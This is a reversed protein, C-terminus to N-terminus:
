EDTEHTENLKSRAVRQFYKKLVWGTRYEQHLWHYYEIEIWKGEESLPRVVENPLLKGVETAGSDPKTFVTAVREKAVFRQESQQAEKVLAKEVLRTLSEITKRQVEFKDSLTDLKNELAAQTQASSYEQWIPVLVALIFSLLAMLDLARRNLGILPDAADFYTPDLSGDPSIGLAALQAQMGESGLASALAAASTWDMVPLSIKGIQDQWAKMSGISDLLASPVEWLKNVEEFQKNVRYLGTSMVSNSLMSKTRELSEEIYSPFCGLNARLDAMTSSMAAMQNAFEDHKLLGSNAKSFSGSRYLDRKLDAFPNLMRRVSEEKANLTDRMHEAAWFGASQSDLSKRVHDPMSFSDTMAKKWALQAEEMKRLHSKITHVGYIDNLNAVDCAKM